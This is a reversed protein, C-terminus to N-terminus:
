KRWMDRLITLMRLWTQVEYDMDDNANGTYVMDEGMSFEDANNKFIGFCDESDLVIYCDEGNYEVPMVAYYGTSDGWSDVHPVLREQKKM